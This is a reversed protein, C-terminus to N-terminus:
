LEFLRWRKGLISFIQFIKLLNERFSAFFATHIDRKACKSFIFEFEFNVESFKDFYFMPIINDFIKFFFM